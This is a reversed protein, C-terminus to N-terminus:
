LPVRGLLFDVPLNRCPPREIPRLSRGPLKRSGQDRLRVTARTLVSLYLEAAAQQPDTLKTIRDTLNGEAPALWSRVEGGNALFLAQDVTAPSSKNRSAPRRPLAHSSPRCPM